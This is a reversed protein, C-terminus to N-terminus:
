PHTNPDEVALGEAAAAANLEGDASLLVLGPVSLQVELAAALQVADYARLVHRDALQAAHRVV